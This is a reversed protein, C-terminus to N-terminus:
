SGAGGPGAGRGGARRSRQRWSCAACRRPQRSPPSGGAARATEPPPPPRGQRTRTNTPWPSPGARRTADHRIRMWRYKDATVLLLGLTATAASPPATTSRVRAQRATWLVEDSADTKVEVIWSISAPGDAHVMA